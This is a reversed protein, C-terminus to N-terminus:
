GGTTILDIIAELKKEGIGSVNLLEEPSKFNGNEERYDIIRQALVEGIGPLTCLAHIDATNINIPGPETEAETTTEAAATSEPASSVETYPESTVAPDSSGSAVTPDTTRATLQVSTHNQNRGAYFGLTFAAFVATLLVLVSIYPKKM